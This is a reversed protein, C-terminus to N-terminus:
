ADLANFRDPTKLKTVPTPVTIIFFNCSKIDNIDSSLTLRGGKQQLVSFIEETSTERTMDNGEILDSVRESDIDFGTTNYTKAFAVALPLGVYGLGIIGIKVNEM